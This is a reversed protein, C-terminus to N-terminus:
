KKSTLRLGLVGMCTTLALFALIVVTYMLYGNNSNALVMDYLKMCWYQPMLKSLAQIWISSNTVPFYLGSICNSISWAFVGAFAVTAVNNAFTGIAITLLILVIGAGFSIFVFQPTSLGLNNGLVNLGISVVIEEIVLTILALILKVCIYNYFNAKTLTIRKLVNNNKETVYISSIFVGSLLFSLCFFGLVYGFVNKQNKQLDTLITLDGSSLTHVHKKIEDKALKSLLEHFTEKNQGVGNAVACINKLLMQSNIKLMQAREDKTTIYVTLVKDSKGELINNEFDSPIYLSTFLNTRKATDTANEKVEEKTLGSADVRYFHFMSYNALANLLYESTKSHSADYVKVALELQDAMQLFNDNLEIETISSEEKVANTPDDSNQILWIWFLSLLPVCIVSILYGKNRLLLKLNLKLMSFFGQM